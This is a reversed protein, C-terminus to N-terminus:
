AFEVHSQCRDCGAAISVLRIRAREIEEVQGDVYTGCRAIALSDALLGLCCDADGDEDEEEFDEVATGKESGEGVGGFGDAGAVVTDWGACCPPELLGDDVEQAEQEHFEAHEGDEREEGPDGPDAVPGEAPGFAVRRQLDGKDHEHEWQNHVGQLVPNDVVEDLICLITALTSILTNTIVILLAVILPKFSLLPPAFLTNIAIFLLTTFIHGTLRKLLCIRRRHRRLVLSIIGRNIALSLATLPLFYRRLKLTEHVLKCENNPLQPQVPTNTYTLQANAHHKQLFM